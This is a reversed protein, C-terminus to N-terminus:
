LKTITLKVPTQRGGRLMRVISYNSMGKTIHYKGPRVKKPYGAQKALLDFSKTDRVYHGEKLAKLVDSYGSGTHIYLYEGQTFSGTNPGFVFYAAVLGVVLIGVLLYKGWSSKKRTRKPM